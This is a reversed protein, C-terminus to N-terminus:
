APSRSRDPMATSGDAHGRIVREAFAVDSHLLDAVAKYDDPLPPDLGLAKRRQPPRGQRGACPEQV